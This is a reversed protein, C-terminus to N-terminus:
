KFHQCVGLFCEACLAIVGPLGIASSLKVLCM